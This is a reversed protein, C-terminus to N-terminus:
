TGMNLDAGLCIAACVCLGVMTAMTTKRNM